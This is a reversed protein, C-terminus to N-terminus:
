IAGRKKIEARYASTYIFENTETEELWSPWNNVECSIFQYGKVDFFGGELLNAITELTNMAELQNSSKTMIQFQVPRTSTGDFYRDGGATPMTTISISKRDKTLGKFSLPAYLSVNASLHSGVGEIFAQM